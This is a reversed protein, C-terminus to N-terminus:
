KLVEGHRRCVLCHTDDFWVVQRMIDAAIADQQDYAPDNESSANIMVILMTLNVALVVPRVRHGSVFDFSVLDQVDLICWDVTNM